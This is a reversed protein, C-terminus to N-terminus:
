WLYPFICSKGTESTHAHYSLNQRKAPLTVGMILSCHVSIGIQVGNQYFGILLKPKIWRVVNILLECINVM